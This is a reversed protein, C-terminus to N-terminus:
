GRLIKANRILIEATAEMESATMEYVDYGCGEVLQFYAYKEGKRPKLVEIYKKGAYCPMRSLTVTNKEM